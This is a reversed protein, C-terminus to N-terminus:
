ALFTPLLSGVALIELIRTCHASVFQFERAHASSLQQFEPYRKHMLLRLPSYRVPTVSFRKMNPACAGLASSNGPNPIMFQQHISLNVSAREVLKPNEYKRTHTYRSERRQTRRAYRSIRKTQRERERERYIYIDRDRERETERERERATCIQKEKEQRGRQRGMDVEREREREREGRGEKGIDGRGEKGIDREREGERESDRQRERERENDREREKEKGKDTM